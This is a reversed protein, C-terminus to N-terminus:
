SNRVKADPDLSITTSYMATKINQLRAAASAMIRRAVLFAVGLAGESRWCNYMAFYDGLQAMSVLIVTFPLTGLTTVIKTFGIFDEFECFVYFNNLNELFDTKFTELHCGNCFRVSVPRPGGSSWWRVWRKESCVGSNRPVETSGGHFRRPSPDFCQFVKYIYAISNRPVETSRGHPETSGWAWIAFPALKPM